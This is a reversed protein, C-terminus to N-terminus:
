KRRTEKRYMRQNQLFMRLLEEEVFERRPLDREKRERKEQWVSRGKAPPQVAEVGGVFALVARCVMQDIYGGARRDAM